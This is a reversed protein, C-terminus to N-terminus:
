PAGKLENYVDRAFAEPGLHGPEAIAGLGEVTRSAVVQELTKGDRIMASIRDRSTLLMAKQAEVADKGVIQGHSTVYRTKPGGLALLTDLGALMGPLSGGDPRGISPYEHARLVDGVVVIDIGPIVIVADSDTHARPVALLRIDQGNLYLSMETKFTIKPAADESPPRAQRTDRSDANPGTAAVRPHLMSYRMQDRGILTAGGKAFLANGGIEDVHAHTNIVYRIPKGPNLKRVETEVREALGPVGTDVMLTGDPGTLVSIAGGHAPTEDIVYFGEAVKRPTVDIKSFDLPAPTAPAQAQAATALSAAGILGALVNISNKRM